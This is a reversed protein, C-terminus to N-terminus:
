QAKFVRDSFHLADGLNIALDRCFCDQHALEGIRRGIFSGDFLCRCDDLGLPLQNVRHRNMGCGDDIGVRLDSGIGLDAGVADDSAVYVDSGAGSQHRVDEQFAFESNTFVINEKRIAGATYSRLVQFVLTLRGFGPDAITIFDAFKDGDVATRLAAAKDRGDTVVVKQHRVDVNGMVDDDAVVGDNGVSDSEGAVDCHVIVGIEASEAGHVLEDVYAPVANHAAAADDFLGNQREGNGGGLM